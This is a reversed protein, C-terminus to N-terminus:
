QPDASLNFPTIYSERCDFNLSNMISWAGGAPLNNFAQISM